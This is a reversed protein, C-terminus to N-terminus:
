GMLGTLFASVPLYLIPLFIAPLMNGVRIHREPFLMNFGIGLILLGGVASMETVVAASLYPGVFGALLTLIGQYLLVALASFLTGVGLTAAFSINTVGDIVGKSLIISYDHNIGAEISGMVAMSGICFILSTTVFGQTFTSNEKGKEVHRQIWGGLQDLHAEIRILEGIVTGIVLCIIMCLTDETKIASTIGICMVALALGQTLVQSFREPIRNKFLLGILGGVLILLANIVTAIM